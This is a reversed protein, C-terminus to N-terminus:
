KRAPSWGRSCIRQDGDIACPLHNVLADRHLSLRLHHHDRRSRQNFSVIRSGDFLPSLYESTRLLAFSYSSWRSRRSRRQWRDSEISLPLGVYVFFSFTNACRDISEPSLISRHFSMASRDPCSQHCRNFRQRELLSRSPEHSLDCQDSFSCSHQSDSLCTISSDQPFSYRHRDCSRLCRFWSSRSPRISTSIAFCRSLDYRSRFGREEDAHSYEVSSRVLVVVSRDSVSIQRLFLSFQGLTATSFVAQVYRNRFLTEIPDDTFTISHNTNTSLNRAKM